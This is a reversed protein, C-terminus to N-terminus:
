LKAQKPQDLALLVDRAEQVKADRAALLLGRLNMASFTDAVLLRRAADSGTLEKNLAERIFRSSVGAPGEWGSRLRATLQTWIYSYAIKGDGDRLIQAVRLRRYIQGSSFMSETLLNFNDDENSNVSLRLVEEADRDKPLVELLKRAAEESGGLTIAIAADRRSAPVGLLEILKADNAPNGAYGIALAASRKIAAPTDGELLPLLQTSLELNPKRWLGEVYAVRIREDLKTDQIRSLMHQYIGADAIQGLAAGAASALRFDDDPDEIITILAKAAAPDPKGYYRLAQTAEYRNRYAMETVVSPRSFDVKPDRKLMGVLEKYAPEYPLEGLAKAAAGVDDGKLEKVLAPGAATAHSAGLARMLAAKRSPFKELMELLPEGADPNGLMRLADVADMGIGDDEHGAQVLLPPVARADGLEALALAAENRTDEDADNVLSALADASRVDFTKALLRVVDRKNSPDKAEKLLLALQPAATSKALADLVSQRLAPQKQMLEFLAGAASPDAARGLGMVAARIVEPDEDPRQIMRVLPAVVEPSAAESLAMAVLARVPKENNGTLEPSSLRPIGLAETLVKPDFGPQSQLLGATFEKLIADSAGDEKLVALAWVVQPRDKADSDPLVKLLKPKAPEGAPLGVAALALAAARRVIGAQDLAEIYLPVAQADKFHALNRIAREKVDDYETNKLETRLASLMAEGELSGAAQIGNMRSEYAQSSQMYSWGLAVAGGVMVVAMIKGTTTTRSGIKRLAQEDSLGSALNNLDDGYASCRLPDSPTYTPVFADEHRIIM